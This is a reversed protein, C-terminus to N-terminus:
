KKGSNLALLLTGLFYMIPMSFGLVSQLIARWDGLANAQYASYFYWVVGAMMVIACWFLKFSAKGRIAAFLATAGASLNVIQSVMSSVLDMRSKIYEYDWGNVTLDQWNSVIVPIAYAVLTIGVILLIIRGVIRM